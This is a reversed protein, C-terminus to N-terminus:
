LADVGHVLRMFTERKDRSEAVLYRVAGTTMQAAAAIKEAPPSLGPVEVLMRELAAYGARIDAINQVQSEPSGQRMSGPQEQEQRAELLRAVTGFGANGQYAEIPTSVSWKAQFLSFETPHQEALYTLYKTCYVALDAITDLISEDSLAKTGAEFATEMRDYKRTINSFVGLIEGHKKWSDGYVRTKKDHLVGLLEFISDFSYDAEGHKDDWFYEFFAQERSTLPVFTRDKLARTLYEIAGVKLDSEPLKAVQEGIEIRDAGDLLRNYIAVLRLFTGLLDDPVRGWDDPRLNDGRRIRDELTFWEALGEDFVELPMSFRPSTFGFDYLTKRRRHSLIRDARAYHREYLHLSDIFYSTTGPETSTWHALMEQLVSWEFTNIGSFGWMIDNSRLAVSLDLRGHRILAHLWNNCPIDRGLINDRAPDFLVIVAQRSEPNQRLKHVIAQMQDIGGWNRLRPGYGGHWVLGDDSYDGARPLYRSLFSMDNRAALVWMTEAVTAFINNNRHPTLVVRRRPEGIRILRPHLERCPGVRSIVEEGTQLVAELETLFAHTVTPYILEAM